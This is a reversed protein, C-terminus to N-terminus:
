MGKLQRYKRYFYEADSQSAQQTESDQTVNALQQKARASALLDGGHSKLVLSRREKAPMDKKWGSHTGPHFWRKSKPTRKKHSRKTKKLYGKRTVRKSSHKHGYRDVYSGRKYVKGPIRVLATTM